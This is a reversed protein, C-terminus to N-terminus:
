TYRPVKFTKSTIVVIFKCVKAEIPMKSSYTLGHLEGLKKHISVFPALIRKDDEDLRHPRTAHNNGYYNKKYPCL